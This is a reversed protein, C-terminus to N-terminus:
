HAASAPHPERGLTGFFGACRGPHHVSIAEIHGATWTKEVYPLPWPTLDEALLESTQNDYVLTVPDNARNHAHFTFRAM